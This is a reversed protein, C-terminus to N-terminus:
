QSTAESARLEALVLLMQLEEVVAQPERREFKVIAALVWDPTDRNIVIRTRAEFYSMGECGQDALWSEISQGM